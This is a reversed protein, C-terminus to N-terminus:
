LRWGDVAALWGSASLRHADIHHMGSANWSADGPGIVSPGALEDDYETETLQTIRLPWVRTGYDPACAQAFRLLAGNWEIVRGAPRAHHINDRVVPNAPHPYWRSTLRDAHFALLSDNGARSCLMWWRGNWPFPSADAYGRDLLVRDFRWRDPFREARYLRVAGAQASEPVMYFEGNYLVVYPYSLHFPEALVVGRYTWHLTDPSTALAISGRRTRSDMAEFFLHWLSDHHVLFPDAVFACSLDTVDPGTLLPQPVEPAPHLDLPSTGRYLGISWTQRLRRDTTSAAASM